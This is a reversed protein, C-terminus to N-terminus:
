LKLKEFPNYGYSDLLDLLKENTTLFKTVKELLETAAPTESSEPIGEASSFVVLPEKQFAELAEAKEEETGGMSEVLEKRSYVKAERNGNGDDVIALVYDDKFEPHDIITEACLSALETVMKEAVKDLALDVKDTANSVGTALEEDTSMYAALSEYNNQKEGVNLLIPERPLLVNQTYLISNITM